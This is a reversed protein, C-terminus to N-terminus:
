KGGGANALEVAKGYFWEAAAIRGARKLAREFRTATDKQLSVTYRKTRRQSPQLPPRGIKAKTMDHMTGLAAHSPLFYKAVNKTSPFM